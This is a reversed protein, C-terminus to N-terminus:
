GGRQWEVRVAISSDLTIPIFTLGTLPQVPRTATCLLSRAPSSGFADITITCSSCDGSTQEIAELIATEGASVVDTFSGEDIGPDVLSATRCGIAVSSDIVSQQFFLWGLDIFGAMLLVFFPFLLAFEIANGGRRDRRSRTM